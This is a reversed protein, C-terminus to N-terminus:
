LVSLMLSRGELDGRKCHVHVLQDHHGCSIFLVEAQPVNVIYTGKFRKLLTKPDMISYSWYPAGLTGSDDLPRPKM